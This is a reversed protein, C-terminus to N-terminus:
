IPESEFYHQEIKDSEIASVNLSNKL